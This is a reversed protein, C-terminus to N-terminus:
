MLGWKQALSVGASAFRDEFQRTGKYRPDNRLQQEFDAMGTPVPNGKEDVGTLAGRIEKSNLDISAPDIELTRAMTSIYGSALEQADAGAMIKEAYPPWASAAQARLDREWDDATTWGAMVSRAASEYFGESMTLGNRTAISRLQDQLTGAQGMLGGSGRGLSLAGQQVGETIAQAMFRQRQPDAWGEFLYRTAYEEAQAASLTVGYQTAFDQVQGRAQEMQDAWDAGGIQQAAFATRAFENNENWWNSNMLEITFKDATWGNEAARKWLKRLEANSNVVRYAFGYKEQLQSMLLDDRQLGTESDRPATINRAAQTVADMAPSADVM